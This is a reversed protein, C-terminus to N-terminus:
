HFREALGNALDPPVAPCVTVILEGSIRAITPEHARILKVADPQIGVLREVSRLASTYNDNRLGFDQGVSNFAKHTYYEEFYVALGEELVNADKKGTPSLLHICERALQSRVLHRERLSSLKLQITINKGDNQYKIGEEFHSFEIGLLTYDLNRPGFMEEAVGLL